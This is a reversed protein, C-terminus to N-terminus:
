LNLMDFKGFTISHLFSFLMVHLWDITAINVQNTQYLLLGWIDKGRGGDRFSNPPIEISLYPQKSTSLLVCFLWLM